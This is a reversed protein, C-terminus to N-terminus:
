KSHYTSWIQDEVKYNVRVAQGMPRHSMFYVLMTTKNKQNVDQQGKVNVPVSASKISNALMRSKTSCTNDCIGTHLQWRVLLTPELLATCIDLVRNLLAVTDRSYVISQQAFRYNETVCNWNRSITCCLHKKIKDSWGNTCECRSDARTSVIAETRPVANSRWKSQVFLHLCGCVDIAEAQPAVNTRWQFAVFSRFCECVVIAETQPVVNKMELIRCVFSFMWVCRNSRDTPGREEDRSHSLRVFVNVCLSQKPRHYWTPEDSSNTLRVYVNVCTSFTSLNPRHSWTPEDSSNSLRDYVNVCSSPKPRHSWTPEDSSNFLVITFLWM